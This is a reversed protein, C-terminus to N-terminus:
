LVVPCYFMKNGLNFRMSLGEGTSEEDVVTYIHVYKEEGPTIYNSFGSGMTVLSLQDGILAKGELDVNAPTYEDNIISYGYISKLDNKSNNKVKLVLDFFDKGEDTPEYQAGNAVDQTTIYSTKKCSIIEVDYLGNVDLKDGPAIKTKGQLKDQSAAPSSVKQTYEKGDMFYHVEIDAVEDVTGVLHVIGAKGAPISDKLLSTGTVLNISTCTEDEYGFAMDHRLDDYMFYGSLKSSGFTTDTNNEIALALDVYVEGETDQYYQGISELDSAYLTETFYCHLLEAKIEGKESKNEIEEPQAIELDPTQANSNDEEAVDNTATQEQKAVPLEESKDEKICGTAATCVLVASLICALKFKKNM